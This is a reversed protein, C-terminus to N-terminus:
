FKHFIIFYVALILLTPAANKHGLNSHIKRKAKINLSIQKVLM